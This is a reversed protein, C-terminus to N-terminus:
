QVSGTVSLGTLFNEVVNLGSSAKAAGNEIQTYLSSQSPNTPTLGAASTAQQIIATTQAVDGAAAILQPTYKQLQIAVDQGYLKVDATDTTLQMALTNKFKASVTGTGTAAPNLTLNLGSATSVATGTSTNASTVLQGPAINASDDVTAAQQGAVTTLNASEQACGTFLAVLMVSAFLSLLHKLQMILPKNTKTQSDTHTPIM